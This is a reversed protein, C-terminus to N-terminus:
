GLDAGEPILAADFLFFDPNGPDAEDDRARVVLNAPMTDPEWLSAILDAEDLTLPRTRSIFERAAAADGAFDAEVWAAM